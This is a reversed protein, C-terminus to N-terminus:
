DGPHHLRHLLKLVLCQNFTRLDKVGLGGQEKPVCVREWAILCQAGLLLPNVQGYSPVDGNTLSM